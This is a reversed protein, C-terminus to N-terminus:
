QLFISSFLRLTSVEELEGFSSFHERISGETATYSLNRLFLRRTRRVMEVPDDSSEPKPTEEDIQTGANEQPREEAVASPPETVPAAAPVAASLRAAFGPGDPDVLDLLRSTRSRLWDDDTGAGAVQPVEGVIVDPPQAVATDGDFQPVDIVKDPLSAKKPDPKPQRAPIDEYEDDSEGAEVVPTILPAAESELSSNLTGHDKLKKAPHGMVELFEQLKPDAEDLNDRKRKKPSSGDGGGVDPLRTPPPAVTSDGRVALSKPAHKFPLSDAIKGSKTL